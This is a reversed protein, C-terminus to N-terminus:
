ISYLVLVYIVLILIILTTHHLSFSWEVTRTSRAAGDEGESNLPTQVSTTNIVALTITRQHMKMKYFYMFSMNLYIICIALFSVQYTDCERELSNKEMELGVAVKDFNGKKEQFDAEVEMYEARVQKLQAMLPQLANQKQRFERQIQEVMGSIQELTAGKMQDVEASKESMEVLSRQTERYGAVGKSRELDELFADLNKHRSKLIQETRQLVVLEARLSSLEERMKRYKEIKERVVAGYKKLDMKGMVRSGMGKAAMASEKEEMQRELRRKEDALRELDDEKERLKKLAMTSAQRFVVLKSNRELAADLRDNLQNVGDRLEELQIRKERVDDVTLVRGSNEWGAIKELHREREALASEISERRDALDRTDKQLKSLLQEASQSSM